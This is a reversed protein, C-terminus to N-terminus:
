LYVRFLRLSVWENEGMQLPGWTVGNIALVPGDPCISQLSVFFHLVWFCIQHFHLAPSGNYCSRCNRGFFFLM